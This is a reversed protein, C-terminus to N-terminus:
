QDFARHASRNVGSQREAAAPGAAHFQDAGPPVCEGAVPALRHPGAEYVYVGEALVVYLDIEQSNSASAATIGPTGFPGRRRNVGCAAWLLNSLLQLPLPKAGIERTTRRRRLADPLSKGGRFKPPPLDIPSPRQPSSPRSM